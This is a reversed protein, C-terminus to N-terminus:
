LSNRVTNCGISFDSNEEMAKRTAELLDDEPTRPNEGAKRWSVSIMLDDHKFSKVMYDSLDIDRPNLNMGQREAKQVAEKATWIEIAMKSNEILFNLLRKLEEHENCVPIAYSIIM